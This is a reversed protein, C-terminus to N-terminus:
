DHSSGLLPCLASLGQLAHELESRMHPLDIKTRVSKSDSWLMEGHSTSNMTDKHLELATSTRDIVFYHDAQRRESGTCTCAMITCQMVSLSRVCVLVAHDPSQLSTYTRLGSETCAANMNM